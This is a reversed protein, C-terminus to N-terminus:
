FAKYFDLSILEIIQNDKIIIKYNELACSNKPGKIQQESGKIKKRSEIIPFFHLHRLRQLVYCYIYPFM